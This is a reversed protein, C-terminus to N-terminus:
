DKALNSFDNSRTEVPNNEM